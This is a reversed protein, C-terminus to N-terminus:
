LAKMRHFFERKELCTGKTCGELLEKMYEMNKDILGIKVVTAKYVESILNSLCRWDQDLKQERSSSEIERVKAVDLIRLCHTSGTKTIVLSPLGFDIGCLGEDHLEIIYRVCQITVWVSLDSTIGVGTPDYECIKGDWHLDPHSLVNFDYLLKGVKRYLVVSVHSGLVEVEATAFIPLWWIRVSKAGDVRNQHLKINEEKDWLENNRIAAIVPVGPPFDVGNRKFTWGTIVVYAKLVRPSDLVLHVQARDGVAVGVLTAMMLSKATTPRNSPKM